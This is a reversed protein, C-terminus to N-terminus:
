TNISDFFSDISSQPDKAQYIARGIIFINAGAQKARKINNYSLGGAVAFLIKSNEKFNEIRVWPSEVGSLEEDIGRHIIIVEPKKELAFITKNFEDSKTGLSDIWADIGTEECSDIFSKITPIPALGSVVAADVGTKASFDVEIKGVDLTKLDAILYIEPFIKRIVPVINRIGENKILPTGIELLLQPSPPNRLGALLKGATMLDPIDIALQLYPPQNLLESM